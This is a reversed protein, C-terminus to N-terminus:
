KCAKKRSLMKEGTMNVYHQCVKQKEKKLKVAKKLTVDDTKGNLVKQNLLNFDNSKALCDCFKEDKQDCSILLTLISVSLLFKKM